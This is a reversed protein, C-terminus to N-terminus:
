LFFPKITRAARNGLMTGCEFKACRLLAAFVHLHSNDIKNSRLSLLRSRLTLMCVVVESITRLHNKDEDLADFENENIQLLKDQLQQKSKAEIFSVEFNLALNKINAKTKFNFFNSPQIGRAPLNKFKQRRSKIDWYMASIAAFKSLNALDLL